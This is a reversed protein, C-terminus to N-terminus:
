LIMGNELTLVRDFHALLHAHHTIMLITKKQSAIKELTKIIEQESAADLQNTVEDLLLVEADAYLARAIAIRQRQGGSLKIGKEGVQTSIGQPLQRIMDELELDGILQQIREQNIEEESFGFAINEAITGDLLYPSQPVYAVIGRWANLNEQNVEKGDLLIKGEYGELFQLLLLLLTTKGEGSRGVLAIKEGKQIILSVSDLIKERDPYRFSINRMEITKAFTLPSAPTKKEKQHLLTLGELESFLYEYSKIQALANLIRNLSPIMRFSAGAYIGLLLFTHQPNEHAVVSYIILSCIILAAIIETLRSASSQYTHDRSLAGALDRSAQDFKKKFFPEKRFASMDILGEVVQIAYKLTLPYKFKLDLSIQSLHKRNLIYVFAVPTIVVVLLIFIKIEYLAICLLLILFVLGESLLTTLPMVINNAFAIPVSAIRNIEKSFDLQTFRLYSLEAYRALMQSSLESGLAFCFKSKRRVIWLAVGNKFIAFALILSTFVIIFSSPSTFGFYSYLWGIPKNSSIFNPNILLFILPLFSALSFFDLLANLVMLGIIGIGKKRDHPPLLHFLPQLIKKNFSL